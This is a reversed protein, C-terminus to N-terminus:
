RVIADYSAASDPIESSGADSGQSNASSGTSHADPSSAGASRIEASLRHPLCVIMQGPTHIASTKVCIQNKCDSSEMSVSGDQILLVNNGYHNQIRITQNQSLDYSGYLEGSVRVELVSAGNTEAQSSGARFVPSLLILLASALYVALLFVDGKKIRHFM